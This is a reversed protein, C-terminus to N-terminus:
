QARLELLAPGTADAFLRVAQLAENLTNGSSGVELILSGTTLQQNYREKKVAIPRALSPYKNVVASQLYLALKMNENWKPHELGNEGTGALLMIQSSIQGDSEAVTKYVIGKSGLADRHLDIVIAINPYQALYSSIASASRGYSGTYSPYDYIERDHIVSLGYSEYCAALEDGLRIVNYKKDETRYTDTPEYEDDEEPTFSESGHTHIILIQPGESPLVQSPGQRLMSELDISYSTENRIVMGGEITTPLIVDPTEPAPEEAEPIEVESPFPPFSEEKNEVPGSSEVMPLPEAAAPGSSDGNLGGFQLGISAAIIKDGESLEQVWNKLQTSNKVSAVFGGGMALLVLATIAKRINM